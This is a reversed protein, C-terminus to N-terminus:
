KKSEEIRQYWKPKYGLRKFFDEESKLPLSTYYEGGFKSLFVWQWTYEPEPIFQFTGHGHYLSPSEDSKSVKGDITFHEQKELFDVSIGNEYEKDVAYILGNGFGIHCVKDGVKFEKTM